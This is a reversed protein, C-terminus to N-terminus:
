FMVYENSKNGVRYKFTVDIDAVITKLTLDVNIDKAVTPKHTFVDYSLIKNVYKDYVYIFNGSSAPITM